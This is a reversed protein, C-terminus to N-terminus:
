NPDRMVEKILILTFMQKNDLFIYPFWFFDSFDRERKGEGKSKCLLSYSHPIKWRCLFSSNTSSSKLSLSIKNTKHDDQFVKLPLSCKTWTKTSCYGHWWCNCVVTYQNWTKLLIFVHHKWKFIDAATLLKASLM